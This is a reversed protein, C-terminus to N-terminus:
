SNSKIVLQGIKEDRRLGLGLFLGDFFDNIEMDNWGYERGRMM